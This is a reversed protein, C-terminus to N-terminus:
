ELTAYLKEKRAEMIGVSYYYFRVFDNMEKFGLYSTKLTSSLLERVSEELSPMMGDRSIKFPFLFVVKSFDANHVLNVKDSRLFTMNETFNFVTGDSRVYGRPTQKNREYPSLLRENEKELTQGPTTQRVEKVRM